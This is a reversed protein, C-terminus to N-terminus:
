IILVIVGVAVAALMAGSAKIKNKYDESVRGGVSSLKDVATNLISVEGELDGEGMDRVAGSFADIVERSICMEDSFNDFAERVDVGDRLAGLFGLRELEPTSYEGIWASIPELYCSMRDRMYRLFASLEDTQRMERGLYITYERWLFFLCGILMFIGIFLM